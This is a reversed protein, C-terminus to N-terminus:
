IAGRCNRAGCRCRKRGEHYSEGYDLTLEDGPTIDRRAFFLVRGRMTRMFLNPDCSHNIYATADGGRSADISTDDDVDCIRIRKRGDSRRSAERRGIREGALEGVRHRKAIARRAFCGRGEISSRGVYLDGNAM